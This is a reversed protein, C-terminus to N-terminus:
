PIWALASRRTRLPYGTPSAMDAASYSRISQLLMCSSTTLPSSLSIRSAGNRPSISFRHGNTPRGKQPSAFTASICTSCQERVANFSSHVYTPYLIALFEDFDACTIDSLVCPGADESTHASIPLIACSSTAICTTCRTKWRVGTSSTLVAYFGCSLDYSVQFVINGDEFYYQPHTLLRANPEVTQDTSVDAITCDIPSSARSRSSSM